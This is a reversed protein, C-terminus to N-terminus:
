VHEELFMVGASVRTRGRVDRAACQEASIKIRSSHAAKGTPVSNM